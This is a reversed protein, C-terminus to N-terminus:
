NGWTKSDKFFVAAPGGNVVMEWWRCFFNIANRASNPLKSNKSVMNNKEFIKEKYGVRRPPSIKIKKKLKQKDCPLYIKSKNSGFRKLTDSIVGLKPKKFFQHMERRILCNLIM